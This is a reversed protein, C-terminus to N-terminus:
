HITRTHQLRFPAIPRGIEVLYCTGECKGRKTSSDGDIKESVGDKEM